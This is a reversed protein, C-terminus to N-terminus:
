APCSLAGIAQFANYVDVYTRRPIRPDVLGAPRFKPIRGNQAELFRILLACPGPDLPKAFITTM